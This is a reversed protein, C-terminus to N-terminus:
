SLCSKKTKRFALLERVARKEMHLTFRPSVPIGTPILREKEHRQRLARRSFGRASHFIRGCRDRRFLSYLHLRDFVGYSPVTLTRQKKIYTLAEMAFLHTCVVADFKEELIYAALKKAYLTNAYYVPSRFRVRDVAEGAKYIAGFMKPTRRIIGNYAGSVAKKAKEGAFSVPDRRVTEVGRAHLAEAVASAASNHGEGTGCTLLLIKQKM